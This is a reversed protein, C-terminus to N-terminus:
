QCIRYSVPLGCVPECGHSRHFGTRFEPSGSHTSFHKDKLETFARECENSCIFESDKRMLKHLPNAIEAFNEIFKRYYSALGIFSKVEKANKPRPFLRVAATKGADPVIGAQSVSHGLFNVEKRLFACKLPNAKLQADILRHLVISLKESLDEM